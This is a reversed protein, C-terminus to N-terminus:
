AQEEEEMEEEEDDESVVKKPEKNLESKGMVDRWATLEDGVQNRAAELSSRMAAYFDENSGSAPSIAFEQTKQKPLDGSGVSAPPKLDYSIKISSSM